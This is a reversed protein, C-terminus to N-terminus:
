ALCEKAGTPQIYSFGESCESAYAMMLRCMCHQLHDDQTDGAFYALYHMLAHNIHDEQPILRWNNPAYKEAGYKLIKGIEILVESHSDLNLERFGIELVASILLDKEGSIMFKAICNITEDARYFAKSLFEPDVLHLAAPPQSQKGGFANVVVKADKGVGEIVKNKGGDIVGFKNDWNIIDAM